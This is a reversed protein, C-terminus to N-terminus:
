TTLEIFCSISIRQRYKEFMDTTDLRVPLNSVFEVAVHGTLIRTPNEPDSSVTYEYFPFGENITTEVWEALDQRQGGNWARIDLILLYTKIRKSSGIFGRPSQKSDFYFSVVPLNWDTNFTEGVRINIPVANGQDDLVEVTDTDVVDQLFDYLSNELNSYEQWGIIM